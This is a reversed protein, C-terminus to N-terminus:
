REMERVVTERNHTRLPGKSARFAKLAQVAWRYASQEDDSCEKLVAAGWRFLGKLDFEKGVWHEFGGLDSCEPHCGEVAALSYGDVHARLRGVSAEPLYM